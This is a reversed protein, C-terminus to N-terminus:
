RNIRGAFRALIRLGREELQRIRERTVNMTRGTEELTVGDQAAVDLSCSHKLEWPELDPFNLKVSGTEPSVDLYLHHKCGVWPCPRPGDVCEARTRPRDGLAAFDLATLPADDAPDRHGRPPAAPKRRVRARHAGRHEVEPQDLEPMREFLWRKALEAKDSEDDPM